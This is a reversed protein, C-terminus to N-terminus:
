QPDAPPQEPSHEGPRAQPPDVARPAPDVDAPPPVVQNDASPADDDPANDDDTLLAEAEEQNYLTDL